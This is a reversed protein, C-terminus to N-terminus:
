KGAKSRIDTLIADLAVLKDWGAKLKDAWFRVLDDYGDGLAMGETMVRENLEEEMLKIAWPEMLVANMEGSLTLDTHCAAGPLPVALRRGRKALESFIHHDHPHDGSTGKMWVDADEKLTKAKAGFTMCTSVTYRWHRSATRIVKSHEGGSYLRTYKDPHDYLTVYDARRIGEELLTPADPTHLYDDECFYILEDDACELLALDFTTMFSGANGKDTEMVVLGTKALMEVTAPACRDAIVRLPDSWDGPVAWPIDRKLFCRVFNKLCVEKTAGILKPKKYSQDSIRYYLKVSNVRLGKQWV